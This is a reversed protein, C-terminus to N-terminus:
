SRERASPLRVISATGEASGRSAPVRLLQDGAILRSYIADFDRAGSVPSHWRIMFERGRRGIEARKTPNQMLDLLVAEATEPTASVIPLDRAYEPLEERV